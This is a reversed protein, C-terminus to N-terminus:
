LNNRKPWHRPYAPRVYGEGSQFDALRRRSRLPSYSRSRCSRIPGCLYDLHQRGRLRNFDDELFQEVPMGRTSADEAIAEDADASEGEADVFDRHHDVETTDESGEDAVGVETGDM